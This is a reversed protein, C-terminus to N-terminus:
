CKGLSSLDYHIIPDVYKAAEDLGVHASVDEWFPWFWKKQQCVFINTGIEKIRRKNRM